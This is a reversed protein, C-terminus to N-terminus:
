DTGIDVVIRIAVPIAIRAPAVESAKATSGLEVVATRTTAPIAQAAHIAITKM